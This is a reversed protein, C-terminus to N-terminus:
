GSRAMNTVRRGDWANRISDMLHESAIRPNDNETIASIVAAGVAGSDIVQEVNTATVGGIAIAPVDTRQRIQMLIEPGSAAVGPHSGTQFITGVVLLDAGSAAADVAGQVSHVSRGILLRDDAVIRAAEVSLGREGLQVGDARCALAVDVRDNIFLLARDATIKRIILGLAYLESAALDKERLQVMNVGGEVAERVVDELLKSGCRNRDTVLCLCPVSIIAM